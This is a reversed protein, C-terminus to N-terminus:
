TNSRTSQQFREFRLNNSDNTFRDGPPQITQSDIRGEKPSLVDGKISLPSPKVLSLTHTSSLRTAWAM